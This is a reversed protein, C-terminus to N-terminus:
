SLSVKTQPLQQITDVKAKSMQKNLALRDEIDLKQVMSNKHYSNIPALRKPTINRCQEKYNIMYEYMNRDGFKKM